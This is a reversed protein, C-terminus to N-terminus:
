KFVENLVVKLSQSDEVNFARLRKDIRRALGTLVKGPGLEILTDIGRMAMHQM